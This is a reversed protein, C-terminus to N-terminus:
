ERSPQAPIRALLDTLAGKVWVMDQQLGGVDQKLKAMDTKLQKLLREHRALTSQVKAMEARFEQQGELLAQVQGPGAWTELHRVRAELGDWQAISM